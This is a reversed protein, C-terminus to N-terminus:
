EAPYGFREVWPALIPLVPALDRAYNRWYGVGRTSLGEKLQVASPTMVSRRRGSFGALDDTWLIGIAACIRRSEGAFDGVLDEHRVETLNLPLKARYIEALRMVSEYFRAAGELTLLPRNSDSLVFRRRFASLVVDRPDRLAFLITAAPFLKALLPLRITNYPQKDILCAGGTAIGFAALTQWYSRRHRTLGAGRLTMLTAFSGANLFLNAVAEGLADKEQTTAVDPHVALAEELLTTGSRAFGLLFVHHQPGMENGAGGADAAVFAGAPLRSFYDTLRELHVVLPDRAPMGGASALAERRAENGASYAEFAAHFSGEGDLADGLFSLTSARDFRTLSANDLLRNLRGRATAYDGEAIEVSALVHEATVNVPRIALAARAHLRATTWDARRGALAALETHANHGRKLATDYSEAAGDFDGLAELLRGRNMHAPVFEPALNAAREFSDYAARTRGLRERCLGLANLVPVDDPALAHAHELDALAAPLRGNQEHWWARLNLFLPNAEGRDLAARALESARGHDGAELADIVARVDPRETKVAAEAQM